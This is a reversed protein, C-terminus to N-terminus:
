DNEKKLVGVVVEKATPPVYKEDQVSPQCGVGGMTQAPDLEVKEVVDDISPNPYWMSGTFTYAAFAAKKADEVSSGFVKTPGKHGSKYTAIYVQKM